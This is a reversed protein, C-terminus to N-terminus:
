GPSKSLRAAASAPSVADARTLAPLVANLLQLLESLTFGDPRGIRVEGGLSTSEEEVSRVSVVVIPIRSAEPTAGWDAALTEIVTHGDVQPMHLDLFIVDPQQSRAIQIAEQGNFAEYFHLQADLTLLMRGILRVVHPDDDVILATKPPTPLRALAAALDERTVPKPLYDDAGLLLAIQRLSPLPCTILPVHPPLTLPAAASGAASDAASDAATEVTWAPDQLVADPLDQLMAAAAAADSALRFECEAVHRRLISLTRADEHLVLVHPATAREVSRSLGGAARPLSRLDPLPLTFSVTTGKGPESEIWIRGDHLEIFKKSIALGLGSGDRIQVEDLRSFAEFARHLNAPDIGRGSDAVSITVCGAAAGQPRSAEDGAGNQADDEGDDAAVTVRVFGRETYRMANTLLNLLVQRIRTRDLWLPLPEDPVAIQLELGRADALGQVMGAADHVIERLDIRQRTLPLQGAELQSLDLVDNILELLHCANRYTAMMDGRYARPLPVGGYSEPATAMMQSFGVILNLPTRLEHSVNAVFESKFRYAKEASEQAFILARNARELRDYAIDLTQLVRRLEARNNQAEEANRRAQETMNLAWALATYLRRSSVMAALATVGILLAPLLAATTEQGAQVGVLAALTACLLAVLITVGISSLMAVVVVYPLYLMIAAGGIGTVLLTVTVFLGGLYIAVAPRLYRPALQQAALASLSTALLAAYAVNTHATAFLVAYAAWVWVCIVSAPLVIALSEAVIDDLAQRTADTTLSRRSNTSLRQWLTM